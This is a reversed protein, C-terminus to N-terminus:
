NQSILFCASTKEHSVVEFECNKAFGHKPLNEMKVGNYITTNNKLGGCYPFLIPSFGAWVNPDGCWLKDEGYKKVSIMEAGFSNIEVKLIGNDITIIQSM